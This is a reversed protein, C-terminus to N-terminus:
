PLVTVHASMGMDAHFVCIYKFMGAATFIFTVSHPGPDMQGSLVGSNLYGTGKYTTGGSPLVAIPNFVLLPPGSPQPEPQILAPAAAGSTFTVTHPAHMNPNTFIVRDGVHVTLDSPLFRMLEFANNDYGLNVHYTTVGGSVTPAPVQAATAELALAAAQDTLVRAAADAVVQTPTKQRATGRPHVVVTGTMGVVSGDPATSGHVSCLYNYTGAKTFTLKYEHANVPSLDMIGSNHYGTGDYTAAGVKFATLPNIIFRPSTASEPIQFPEAAAGANLFTVTHLEQSSQAWVVTDGENVDIVKPYYSDIAWRPHATGDVMNSGGEAGVLVTYTSPDAPQSSQQGCATFVAATLVTAMLPSHGARFRM